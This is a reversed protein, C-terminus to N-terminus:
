RRYKTPLGADVAAELVDRRVAMLEHTTGWFTNTHLVVFGAHALLAQMQDVTAAGDYLPRLFAETFVVRASRLLDLAAALAAHEFGQMDLAFLDIHDVNHEAAWSALTRQEVEVTSFSLEPLERKIEGPKLLSSCMTGYGDGESVNMEVIGDEVGIALNWCHVGLMPATREKLLAFARPEPEFAHVTADPWLQQFQPLEQGSAAGAEVIVPDSPLFPVAESLPIGPEPRVLLKGLTQRM